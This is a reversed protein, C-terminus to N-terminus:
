NGIGQALSQTTQSTDAETAAITLRDRVTVQKYLPEKRVSCKDELSRGLFRDIFALQSALGQNRDLGHGADEVAQRYHNPAEEKQAAVEGGGEDEAYAHTLDPTDKRFGQAGVKPSKGPYGGILFHASQSHEIDNKDDDEDLGRLKGIRIDHLAYVQEPMGADYDAQLDEPQDDESDKAAASDCGRRKGELKHPLVELFIRCIYAPFQYM